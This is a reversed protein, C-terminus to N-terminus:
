GATPIKVLPDRIACTLSQVIAAIWRPSWHWTTSPFLLLIGLSPVSTRLIVITFRKPELRKKHETYIGLLDNCLVITVSTFNVNRYSTTFLRKRKSGKAQLEKNMRLYRIVSINDVVLKIHRTVDM